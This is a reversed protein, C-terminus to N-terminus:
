CNEVLIAARVKVIIMMWVGKLISKRHEKFAITMMADALFHGKLKLLQMLM